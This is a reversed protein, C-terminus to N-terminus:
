GNEPGSLVKPFMNRLTQSYHGEIHELTLNYSLLYFNVMNIILSIYYGM